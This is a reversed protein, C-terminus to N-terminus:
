VHTSGQGRVCITTFLTPLGCPPDGTGRGTLPKPWMASSKIAETVQPHNKRNQFKIYISDYLLHDKTSRESLMVDTFNMWTTLQRPAANKKKISPCYEM